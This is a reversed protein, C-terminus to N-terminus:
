CESGPVMESVLQEQKMEHFAFALPQFPGPRTGPPHVHDCGVPGM